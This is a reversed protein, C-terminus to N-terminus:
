NKDLIKRQKLINKLPMMFVAKRHSTRIDILEEVTFDTPFMVSLLPIDQRKNDIIKLLNMFM